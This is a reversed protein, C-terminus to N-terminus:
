AIFAHMRYSIRIQRRNVGHADDLNLFLCFADIKPLKPM